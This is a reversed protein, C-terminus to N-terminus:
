GKTRARVFFSLAVTKGRFDALSVPARLLGYRTAGPLSFDPAAQGVDPSGAGASQAQASASTAIASIAALALATPLLRKTGAFQTM